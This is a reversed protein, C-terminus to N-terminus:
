GACYEYSPMPRKCGIVMTFIFKEMAAIWFNSNGEFRMEGTRPLGVRLAYTPSRTRGHHTDLLLAQLLGSEM